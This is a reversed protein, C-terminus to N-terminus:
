PSSYWCKMYSGFLFAPPCNIPILCGLCFVETQIRHCFLCIFLIFLDYFMINLTLGNGTKCVITSWHHSLVFACKYRDSASGSKKTIPWLKLTFSPSFLNTYLPCSRCCKDTKFFQYMREVVLIGREVARNGLRNIKSAGFLSWLYSIFHEIVCSKEKAELIM